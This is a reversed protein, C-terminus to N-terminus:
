FCRPRDAYPRRDRPTNEARREKTPAARATAREHAPAAREPPRARCTDRGLSPRGCPAICFSTRHIGYPGSVPRGTNRTVALTAGVLANSCHAPPQYGGRRHIQSVVGLPAGLDDRGVAWCWGGGSRCLWARWRFRLLLLKQLGLAWHGPPFKSRWESKARRFSEAQSLSYSGYHPVPPRSGRDPPSTTFRCLPYPPPGIPVFHGDAADGPSGKTEKGDSPFFSAARLRRFGGQTCRVWDSIQGRM